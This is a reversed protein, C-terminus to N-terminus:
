NQQDNGKKADHDGSGQEAQLAFKRFIEPLSGELKDALAPGKGNGNQRHQARVFEAVVQHPASVAHMDGQGIEDGHRNEIWKPGHASEDVHFLQGLVALHEQIDAQGAGEGSHQHGDRHQDQAQHQRRELGDRHFNGLPHVQLHFAVRQKIQQELEQDKPLHQRLRYGIFPQGRQEIPHHVEEGPLGEGEAAQVHANVRHRQGTPASQQDSREVQEGGPLQITTM